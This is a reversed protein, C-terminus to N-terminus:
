GIRDRISKLLNQVFRTKQEQQKQQIGNHLDDHVDKKMTQLINDRTDADAANIQTWTQLFDQDTNGPNGTVNGLGRVDSTTTMEEKIPKIKPQVRKAARARVNKQKELEQALHRRKQEARARAGIKDKRKAHNALARAPTSADIKIDMGQRVENYMEDAHEDSVTPHMGARFDAKKGALAHRRMKSASMKRRAEEATKPKEDDDTESDADREGASVVDIKKFKYEKGNYSDLLKKIGEVRDSGVVMVLHDHGAAALKKVHDIISPADEDTIRIPAGPFMRKAHKLKQEPTLPNKEPDQSRSLAIDAKAKNEKALEQVKSVVAGHGAYTPPNMRGFSTVVPNNPMANESPEPEGMKQFSGRLFNARSFEARDVLKTPRGNRIAVFGEPKVPDGGITTKFGNDARSLASILTDKAQQLTSHLKFISNFQQKHLKIHDSILKFEDMKKKKGAESKAKDIDKTARDGLFKLYGDASASKWTGKRVLDNIYTKITIEHGDLVNFVDPDMGAYVQTASEIEKEFKKKEIPAISSPGLEPNVMHVDPDTRFAGHDVDFTAKMDALKKGVYKTHVVVGLKAGAVSRGQASGKDATYTITNPTFSYSEGNDKVDDKTYMLDGQFVGGTKPMIKPLEELAAKLKAVLGPAHGHNTECDEPTYNLKPNKNFASKSAVFFKGNEPNIGFVISPAGDYKTTIKTKTPLGELVKVVDMLTDHTHSVGEHGGHIIHDEAHELHKLKEVDLSETLFNKFVLM